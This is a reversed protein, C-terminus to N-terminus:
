PVHLDMITQKNDYESAHSKWFDMAFFASQIHPTEQSFFLRVPMYCAWLVYVYVAWGFCCRGNKSKHSLEIRSRNEQMHMHMHMHMHM